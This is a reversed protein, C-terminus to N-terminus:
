KRMQKIRTWLIWWAAFWGFWFVAQFEPEDLPLSWPLPTLWKSFALVVLHILLIGEWMGSDQIYWNMVSADTPLLSILCYYLLDLLSFLSPFSSLLQLIAPDDDRPHLSTVPLGHAPRPTCMGRCLSKFVFSVFASVIFETVDVSSTIPDFLGVKTYMMLIFAVCSAWQGDQAAGLSWRCGACWLLRM